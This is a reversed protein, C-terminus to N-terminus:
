TLINHSVIERNLSNGVAVHNSTLAGSPLLNLSPNEVQECKSGSGKSEPRIFSVSMVWRVSHLGSLLANGISIFAINGAAFRLWQNVEKTRLIRRLASEFEEM